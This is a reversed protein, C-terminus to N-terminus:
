MCVCFVKMTIIRINLSKDSECLSVVVYRARNGGFALWSDIESNTMRSSDIKEM